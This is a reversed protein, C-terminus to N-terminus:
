TRVYTAISRNRLNIKHGDVSCWEILTPLYGLYTFNNDSYPAVYSAESVLKNVM